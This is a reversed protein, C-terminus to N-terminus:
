GSAWTMRMPAAQSWSAYLKGKFYALSAHHCYAWDPDFDAILVRDSPLKGM